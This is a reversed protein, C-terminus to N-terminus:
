LIFPVREGRGPKARHSPSIADLASRVWAAPESEQGWGCGRSGTGNWGFVGGAKVGVEHM